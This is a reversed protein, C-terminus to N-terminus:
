RGDGAILARVQAELDAIPRPVRAVDGRPGASLSPVLVRADGGLNADYLLFADTGVAEGVNGELGLQQGYFAAPDLNVADITQVNSLNTASVAVLM